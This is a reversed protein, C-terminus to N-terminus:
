GLTNWWWRVRGTEVTAGNSNIDTVFIKGESAWLTGFSESVFNLTSTGNVCKKGLVDLTNNTVAANECILSWDVAKSPYAVFSWSFADYTWDVMAVADGGATTTDGPM